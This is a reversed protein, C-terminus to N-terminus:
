WAARASASAAAPPAACSACPRTGTRLTSREIRRRFRDRLRISSTGAVSPRLDHVLWPWSMSL